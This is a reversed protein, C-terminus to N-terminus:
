AGMAGRDARQSVEVFVEELTTESVMYAEVAFHAQLLLLLLLLLLFVTPFAAVLASAAFLLLTFQRESNLDMSVAQQTPSNAMSSM